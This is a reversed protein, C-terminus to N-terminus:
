LLIGAEFIYFICARETVCTHHCLPLVAPPRDMIISSGRRHLRTELGCKKAAFTTPGPHVKNVVIRGAPLLITVHCETHEIYGAAIILARIRNTLVKYVFYVNM